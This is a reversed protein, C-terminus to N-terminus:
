ISKLKEYFANYNIEASVKEMFKKRANKRLLLPEEKQTKLLNSIEGALEITTIGAPVLRGVDNNVLEGVGGVDTAIVPIGFSLAEMISVPLGESSSVNLFLDVPQHKLFDIIKKNDVYGHFIIELGTRKVGALNKLEQLLPGDGFHHWTIKETCTELAHYILHLRKLAVVNSVSLVTRSPKENLPNVGHDTVGLRSVIIKESFQPYKNKLYTAGNESVTILLSAEQLIKERLPSYGHKLHEYLDSGHFRIVIKLKKVNIKKVLYPIIGTLNDGWYFYFVPDKLDKVWKVLDKFAQSSLALRTILVSIVFWRFKGPSLFVKKSFLEALHFGFPSFNFKGKIFLLAKATPSPLVPPYLHIDGGTLADKQEGYLTFVSVSEAHKKTYELENVLFPEARKYPFFNTFLIIDM